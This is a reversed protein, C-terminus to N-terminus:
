HLPAIGGHIMAANVEAAKADHLRQREAEILHLPRIDVDDDVMSDAAKSAAEAQVALDGTHPEWRKKEYMQDVMMDLCTLTEERAKPTM